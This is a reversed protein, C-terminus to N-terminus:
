DITIKNAHVVPEWIARSDAIRRALERPGENSPQYGATRLYALMDPEAMVASIAAKIEAIAGSPTGAPAAVGWWSPARVGAYGAEAFTQVAPLLADRGEMALMRLEGSRVTPIAAGAGLVTAHVDGSRMAMLVPAIGNYPIHQIRAGSAAKFMEMVLQPATGIGFSGYNLDKRRSLEVLERLSAVGLSESVAIGLPYTLMTMVPTFDKVPDYPLKPYVLPNISYTPDPAILLTHGDAVAHAVTEAAIVTGAGPKNSVVVSQNWRRRLGEALKRAAIDTTGGAAFPVVLTVNREPFGAARAPLSALALAAGSAASALLQRRTPGPGPCRGSLPEM